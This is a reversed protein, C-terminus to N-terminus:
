HWEVAYEQCICPMWSVYMGAAAAEANAAELEQEISKVGNDQLWNEYAETAERWSRYADATDGTELVEIQRRMKDVHDKLSCQM